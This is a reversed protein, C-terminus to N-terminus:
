RFREYAMLGNAAMVNVLTEKAWETSMTFPTGKGHPIKGDLVGSERANILIATSQSVIGILYFVNQGYAIMDDAIPKQCPQLDYKIFGGVQDHGRKLEIWVSKGDELPLWCDMLGDTGGPAAEIWKAYPDAAKHMWKRVDSEKKVTILAM